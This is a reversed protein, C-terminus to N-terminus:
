NNGGGFLMNSLVDEYKDFNFNLNNSNIQPIALENFIVVAIYILAKVIAETYKRILDPDKKIKLVKILYDDIIKYIDVNPSIKEIKTVIEQPTSIKENKNLGLSAAIFFGLDLVNQLKPDISKCLDITKEYNLCNEMEKKKQFPWSKSEELGCILIDYLTLSQILEKNIQELSVSDQNYDLLAYLTESNQITDAFLKKIKEFPSIKQNPGFIRIMKPDYRLEHMLIQFNPPFKKLIGDLKIYINSYKKGVIDELETNYSELTELFTDKNIEYDFLKNFQNQLLQENFNSM